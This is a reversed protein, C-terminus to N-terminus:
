RSFDALYYKVAEGVSRSGFLTKNGLFDFSSRKRLISSNWWITESGALQCVKKLAQPSLTYESFPYGSLEQFRFASQNKFLKQLSPSTSSRICHSHKQELPYQSNAIPKYQSTNALWAIWLNIGAAEGCGIVRCGVSNNSLFINILSCKSSLVCFLVFHTFRISWLTSWPSTPLSTHM